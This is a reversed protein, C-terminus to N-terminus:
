LAVVEFCLDFRIQFGEINLLCASKGLRLRQGSELVWEYADYLESVPEGYQGALWTRFGSDVNVNEPENQYVLIRQIISQEAQVLIRAVYSHMAREGIEFEGSSIQEVYLGREVFQNPDFIAGVSLTCIVEYGIVLLPDPDRVCLKTASNSNENTDGMAGNRENGIEIQNENGDAERGAVKRVNSCGMAILASLVLIHVFTVLM